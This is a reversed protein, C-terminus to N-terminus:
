VAPCTGIVGSVTGRWFSGKVDKDVDVKTIIFRYQGAMNDDLNQGTYFPGGAPGWYVEPFVTTSADYFQTAKAYNRFEAWVTDDAFLVHFTITDIGKGFWVIFNPIKGTIEELVRFSAPTLILLKNDLGWTIKEAAVLIETAGTKFRVDYTM